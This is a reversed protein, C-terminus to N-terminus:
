RGGDNPTFKWWSNNAKPMAGGTTTMKMNPTTPELLKMLYQVVQQSMQATWQRPDQQMMGQQGPSPTASPFSTNAQATNGSSYRSGGSEPPLHQMGPMRGSMMGPAFPINGAGMGPTAPNPAGGGM